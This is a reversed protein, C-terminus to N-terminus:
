QLIVMVVDCVSMANVYLLHNYDIRNCSARQPLWVTVVPGKLAVM